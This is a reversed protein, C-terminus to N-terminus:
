NKKLYFEVNTILVPLGVPRYELIIGDNECHGGIARIQLTIGAPIHVHFTDTENPNFAKNRGFNETALKVEVHQHCKSINKIKVINKNGIMGANYVAITNNSVVQSFAPISFAVLLLILLHKTM